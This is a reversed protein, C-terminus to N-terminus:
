SAPRPMGLGLRAKLVSVQERLVPVLPVDVGVANAIEVLIDLDKEAWPMQRDVRWNELPRNCGSGELLAERVTPWDMGQAEALAQAEANICTASWLLLNNLAKGLQGSGVDGLRHVRRAFCSLVPQIARLAASTGGALVLLTGADAAARGGVVPIDVVSVAPPAGDALDQMLQPQVTSLVALVSGARMVEFMGGRGLCTTRVEVPFGLAVLVVPASEALARPDHVANAGRAVAAQTAAADVDYCYVRHGGDILHRVAAAGIVGVGLVGVDCRDGIRSTM